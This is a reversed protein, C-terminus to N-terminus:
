LSNQQGEAPTFAFCRTEWEGWPEGPKLPAIRDPDYLGMDVNAQHAAVECAAKDLFPEGGFRADGHNGLMVLLYIVLIPM